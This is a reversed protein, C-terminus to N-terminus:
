EDVRGVKGGVSEDVKGVLESMWGVWREVLESM